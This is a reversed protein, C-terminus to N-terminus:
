QDASAGFPGKYLLELITCDDSLPTDGCFSKVSSFISEYPSDSNASEELREDGYFEGQADEAETVGDTVMVIRGGPPLKIKACEFEAGALLGVPVNSCKTRDIAGGAVLVPPVHGCNVYELEGDPKLRSLLLTAYKQGMVKRCLFANATSVIEDLPMNAILQSYIMGQLISALLAASIGKGSVDAVLVALGHDTMVVDFFDGGVDKCALNTAKIEAFPVNPISVTMLRQQISAAITLEQQYRRAAEEAQVLYANEVLAAAETAIARLIDHGVASIDRSAFRSDLYLVGRVMRRADDDTSKEAFLTQTRRLPIAIVTRLDYAIISNRGALDSSSSTDSVMFESATNAAEELISKSITSDDMLMEGKANRGATLRLDGDAGQLFVYGREAKTLKLTSDLLTMLVDSLVGTTNLKRAAELFLRLKELDSSGTSAPMLSIQSLFEAASSPHPRDPDFLVYAGDRAGFDIRDNRELKHRERRTGNVFTGHRSNQDVIYYEGGACIIQAHDRSVRSDAIVLDKDTKRGITFPLREMRINRQEAGEVYLLTPAPAGDAALFTAPMSSM